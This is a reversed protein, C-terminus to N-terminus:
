TEIEFEERAQALGIAKRSDTNPVLTPAGPPRVTLKLAEFDSKGILKELEGIGKIKSNIYDTEKFGKSALVSVAKRQDSIVRSSRGEVLKYGKIKKGAKAEELLHKTVAEVWSKLLKAQEYVEIVEDSSLTKPKAFDRVALDLSRKALAKCNHKVICWRCWEGPSCDGEGKYAKGASPAVVEKAWSKLEKLRLIESDIHDLRPQVITLKVKKINYALDFRRLVGLAYMRLQSNEYAEVKLGKGYKLDVIQLTGDNVISADVTGFGGPVLYSFDVRQEIRLISNLTNKKAVCYQELVYDTYVAIHGEMEPTYLANERLLERQKKWASRRDEGGGSFSLIKLSLDGFEHALTGEAAFSSEQERYTDEKRRAEEMRASPPCNLWRSAGSASLIAHKRKQHRIM